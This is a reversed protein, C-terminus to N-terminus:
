WKWFSFGRAVEIGVLVFVGFAILELVELETMM